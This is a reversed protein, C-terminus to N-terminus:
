NPPPYGTQERLGRLVHGRRMQLGLKQRGDFPISDLSRADGKFIGFDRFYDGVYDGM